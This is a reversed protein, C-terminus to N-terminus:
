VVIFIEVDVEIIVEEPIYPDQKLAMSFVNHPGEESKSRNKHGQGPTTSSQYPRSTCPKTYSDTTFQIGDIGVM